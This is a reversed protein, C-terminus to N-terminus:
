KAEYGYWTGLLVAGATGFRASVMKISREGEKAWGSWHKVDWAGTRTYVRTCKTSSQACSTITGDSIGGYWMGDQLEKEAYAAWNDKAHLGSLSFVDTYSSIDSTHKRDLTVDGYQYYVFLFAAIAIIVLLTWKIWKRKKM